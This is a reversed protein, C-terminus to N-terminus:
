IAEGCATHLVQWSGVNSGQLAYGIEYYVKWSCSYHPQRAPMDMPLRLLLGRDHMWREGIGVDASGKAQAKKQVATVCFAHTGILAGRERQLTM